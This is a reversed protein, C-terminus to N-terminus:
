VTIAAGWIYSDGQIPIVIIRMKYKKCTIIMQVNAITICGLSTKRSDNQLSSLREKWIKFYNEGAHYSLKKTHPLQLALVQWIM